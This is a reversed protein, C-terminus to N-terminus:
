CRSAANVNDPLVVGDSVGQEHVEGGASLWPAELARTWEFRWRSPDTDSKASSETVEGSLIANEPVVVGDVLTAVELKAQVVTGVPTVGAVIKKRMTAPFELGASSNLVSQALGM